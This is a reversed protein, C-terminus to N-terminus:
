KLVEDIVEKDCVGMIEAAKEKTESSVTERHIDWRSQQDVPNREYYRVTFQPM